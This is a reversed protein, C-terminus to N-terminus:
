IVWVVRKVFANRWLIAAKDRSLAAREYFQSVM